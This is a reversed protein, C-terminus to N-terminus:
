FLEVDGLTLRWSGLDVPPDSTVARATLVPGRGPLPLLSATRGLAATFDSDASRRAERVVARASSRDGSRTVLECLSLERANGRIRIRFIAFGRDIGSPHVVIRYGLSALGYRWALYDLSRSTRVGSGGGSEALLADVAAGSARLVAAVDEGPSDSSPWLEAHAGRNEVSARIGRLSASPRFSLTLRGVESWGMKLYGPRSQDNPTNFVWDVQESRLDDLAALTLSRFLGRGRADPHTATDVARVASRVSGDVDFSWRMFTRFGLIRGEEVGVWAPSRGFPNDDHKWSFLARHREDRQWGLSSVMLELIEPRDDVTARRIKVNSAAVTV